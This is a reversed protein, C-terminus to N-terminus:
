CETLVSIHNKQLVEIAGKIRRVRYDHSSRHHNLMPPGYFLILSMKKEEDTFAGKQELCSSAYVLSLVSPGRDATFYCSANAYDPQCLECLKQIIKVYLIEIFDERTKLSFTEQHNFLEAHMQDILQQVTQKWAVPDLQDPWKFLSEEDTKEFMEHMLLAKFKTSDIEPEAFAKRQWYFDSAKDITATYIVGRFIDEKSLNEICKSLTREDGNRSM